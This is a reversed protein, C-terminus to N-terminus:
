DFLVESFSERTNLSFGLHRRDYEEVHSSIMTALGDVNERGESVLNVIGELESVAFLSLRDFWQTSTRPLVKHGQIEAVAGGSRLMEAMAIELETSRALIESALLRTAESILGIRKDRFSTILGGRTLRKQQETILESFNYEIAQKAAGIASYMEGIPTDDLPALINQFFIPQTILHPKYGCIHKLERISEQLEEITTFHDFSIFGMRLRIDYDMLVKIARVNEAVTVGKRYRNLVSQSFSEIGIFVAYLGAEKLMGITSEHIDNSRAYISFALGNLQRAILEAALDRAWQQGHQGPGFFQPDVFAFERVNHAHYLNEMEQAVKDPSRGRWPFSGHTKEEARIYCFTCKAYCGRSAEIAGVYGLRHRASEPLDFFYRKPAPLIDLDRVLPLPQNSIVRDDSGRIAVGPVQSLQRGDRVAKAFELFDYEEGTVVVDVPSERLLREPGIQTNGYFAIIADKLRPDKKCDSALRCGFIPSNTPHKDIVFVLMGTGAEAIKNVAAARGDPGTPPHLALDVVSTTFGEGELVSALYGVRVDEHWQVYEYDHEHPRILLITQPNL